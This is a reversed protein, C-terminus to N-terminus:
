FHAEEAAQASAGIEVSVEMARRIEVHLYLGGGKQRGLAVSALFIHISQATSVSKWWRIM